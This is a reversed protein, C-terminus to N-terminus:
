AFLIKELDSIYIWMRGLYGIIGNSGPSITEALTYLSFRYSVRTCIYLLYRIDKKECMTLRWGLNASSLGHTWDRPAYEM